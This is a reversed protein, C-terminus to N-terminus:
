RHLVGNLIVAVYFGFAVIAMLKVTRLARRRQAAVLDDRAPQTTM